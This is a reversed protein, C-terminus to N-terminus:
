DKEARDFAMRYHESPFLPWFAAFAVWSRLPPMELGPPVFHERVQRLFLCCIVMASVIIIMIPNFSIVGAATASFGAHYLLNVVVLLVAARVAKKWSRSDATSLTLLSDVTMFMLAVDMVFSILAAERFGYGSSFGMGLVLLKAVYIGIIVMMFLEAFRLAMPCVARDVLSSVADGINGSIGKVGSASM